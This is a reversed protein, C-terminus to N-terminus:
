SLEAKNLQLKSHFVSWELITEPSVGEDPDHTLTIKIELSSEFVVLCLAKYILPYAHPVSETVVGSSMASKLSLYV